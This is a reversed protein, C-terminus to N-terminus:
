QSFDAAYLYLLGYTRVVQGDGRGHADALTDAKGPGSAPRRTCIPLAWRTFIPCLSKRTELAFTSISNFAIPPARIPCPDPCGCEWNIGWPAFFRHGNRDTVGRQM